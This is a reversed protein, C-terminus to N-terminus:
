RRTRCTASAPVATVHHRELPVCGPGDERRTYSAVHPSRGAGPTAGARASAAPPHGKQQILAERPSVCLGAAGSRDRGM